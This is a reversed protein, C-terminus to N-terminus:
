TIQLPETGRTIAMADMTAIITVLVETVLTTPMITREVAM